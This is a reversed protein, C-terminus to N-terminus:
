RSGMSGRNLMTLLWAGHPSLRYILVGVNVVLTIWFVVRFSAKSSKHHLLQQAYLAGPWGGLVALIHLTNEPIRQAGRGAASKDIAYMGFTLISMGLYPWLFAVPLFGLAM